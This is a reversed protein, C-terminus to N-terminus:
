DLELGRVLFAAMAMRTVPNSPRFTGDDYGTTIGSAALLEIEDFFPHGLPVDSFTPQAPVDYDQELDLGRVLFAAMAMRTVPDSPRFTGDDYGTTIGSAALAEIENYFPHTLPVDTFTHEPAAVNTFIWPTHPSWSSWSDDDGFRVRVQWEFQTGDNPFAVFMVEKGPTLESEKWSTDGIERVRMQCLDADPHPDWKFTITNAAGSGYVNSGNEPWILTVPAILAEEVQYKAVEELLEGSSTQTTHAVVWAYYNGPKEPTFTYDEKHTEGPQLADVIIIEGDTVDPDPYQKKDLFLEIKFENSAISGENTLSIEAVLETGLASIEPEVTFSDIVIEASPEEPPPIITYVGATPALSVPTHASLTLAPRVGRTGYYAYGYFNCKGDTGVQRVGAGEGTISPSRTWYRTPDGALEAIRDTDTAGLFYPYAHGIEYTNLHVTDGLETTSPIFVNDWSWYNFGDHWRRTLIQSPVIAEKFSTSFAQYFGEDEHIGSSNLWPRLGRTANPIGTLHWWSHGYEAGAHSHSTSNDFTYKGILEEALLTVGLSDTYHHKAVVIWTVPKTVGSGSYNSGTKFEWDWSKDVVRDGFSLNILPQDIDSAEVVDYPIPGEVVPGSIQNITDAQAWAQRTGTSTPTFKFSIIEYAGPAFGASVTTLRDGLEAESPATSRNSYFDVWFDSDTELDGVNRVVITAILEDGLDSIGPEVTFSEIEIEAPSPSPPLVGRYYHYPGYVPREGNRTQTTQAQAWAYSSGSTASFPFTETRTEGPTMSTVQKWQDGLIHPLPATDRNQYFDLFFPSSTAAGRNKIVVTATKSSSIGIRPNVTLSEIFIDAGSHSAIQSEDSPHIETRTEGFATTSHGAFLFFILLFIIMLFPFRLIKGGVREPLNNLKGNM